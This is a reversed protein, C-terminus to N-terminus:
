PQTPADPDPDTATREAIETLMEGLQAAMEPPVFITVPEPLLEGNPTFSGIFTLGVVAHDGDAAEAVGGSLKFTNVWLPRNFTRRTGAPNRSPPKRRKGAPM